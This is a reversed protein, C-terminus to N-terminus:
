CRPRRIRRRPRPAAGAAALLIVAATVSRRLSIAV